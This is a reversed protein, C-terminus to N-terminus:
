ARSRHLVYSKIELLGAWQKKESVIDIEGNVPWNAEDTLWFAPWVGCGVPMHRLDIIFLGRNFRRIGELRISDRPGAETPSSGLYVFPETRNSANTTEFNTAPKRESAYVDLVDPEM